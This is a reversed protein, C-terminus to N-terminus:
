LTITEGGPFILVDSIAVIKRGSYFMFERFTDTYNQWQNIKGGLQNGFSFKLKILNTWKYKNPFSQGRQGQLM